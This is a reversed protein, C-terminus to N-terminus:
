QAVIVITGTLSTNSPQNHDHFGCTRVVVLNGTERSQGPNIFGVNNIEPCDTHDPHPDSSMDHPRTGNNVFTVRGGARITVQNPTVGSATITITASAPTPSPEPSPSPTPTPTPTPSPTPTPTPNTPTGSGSGGGCAVAAAVLAIALARLFRGTKM